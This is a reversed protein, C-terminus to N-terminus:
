FWTRVTLLFSELKYPPTGPFLRAHEERYTRDIRKASSRFIATMTAIVAFWIWVSVQLIMPGHEAPQDRMNALGLGLTILVTMLAYCGGAAQQTSVVMAQFFAAHKQRAEWDLVSFEVDM